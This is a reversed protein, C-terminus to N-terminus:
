YVFAHEEKNSATWLSLSKMYIKINTMYIAFKTGNEHLSMWHKASKITTWYNLSLWHISDKFTTKKKNKSHAQGKSFSYIKETKKKEIKIYSTYRKLAQLEM